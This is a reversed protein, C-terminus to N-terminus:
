INPLLNLEDVMQDLHNCSVSCPRGLGDSEQRKKFTAVCGRMQKLGMFWLIRVTQVTQSLQDPGTM